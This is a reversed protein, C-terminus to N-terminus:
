AEIVTSFAKDTAMGSMILGILEERATTIKKRLKSNFNHVNAKWYAIMEDKATDRSKKREAQLRLEKAEEEARVINATVDYGKSEAFNIMEDSINNYWAPAPTMGDPIDGTIVVYLRILALRLSRYGRSWDVSNERAIASLENSALEGENQIFSLLQTYEYPTFREGSVGQAFAESGDDEYLLCEVLDMYQRMENSSM